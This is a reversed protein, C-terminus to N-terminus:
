KKTELFDLAAEAREWAVQIAVEHQLMIEWAMKKLKEQQTKPRYKEPNKLYANMCAECCFNKNGVFRSTGVGGCTYCCDHDMIAENKFM